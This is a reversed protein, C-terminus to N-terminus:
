KNMFILTNDNKYVITDENMIYIEVVYSDDDFYRLTFKNLGDFTYTGNRYRDGETIPYVYDKFTKDKNFTFSSGAQIYATGFIATLEEKNWSEDVEDYFAAKTSKWEGTFDSEKYAIFEYGKVFVDNLLINIESNSEGFDNSDVKIGKEDQIIFDITWNKDELPITNLVEGDKFTYSKITCKLKHNELVEYKGNITMNNSIVSKFEGNAFEINKQNAIYNLFGNVEDIKNQNLSFLYTGEEFVKKDNATNSTTNTEEQVNNISNDLANNVINETEVVESILNEVKEEEKVKDTSIKYIIIGMIIIVIIAIILFVTPVSIKIKKKEDM